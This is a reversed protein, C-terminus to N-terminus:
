CRGQAKEVLFGPVQDRPILEHERGDRSRFEVQGAAVTRHSLIVRLPIGLLDAESFMPGAKNNRDDYLVDLGADLLERYLAEAQLAVEPRDRNLACLHVQWPAIALPWIPGREDHNQEIVAAMTRGIGIGYCGMLMPRSEGCEDQFRCNMPDSYKTGLQFINGVEIGRHEILPQGTVPCPDGARALALDTFTVQDPWGPCDREPNFHKVHRDPANAGAVLNSSRAISFDMIVRVTGPALGLPSAFGPECGIARLQEDTAFRVEAAQLHKRLKVENVELDGRILVLVVRDSPDLVAVTKCISAADLALFAALEGITRCGPTTVRELPLPPSVRFELGTTAVERNARYSHDPSTFFTDEGCDAVAMFEHSVSGGMMGTDSQISVLNRLGVRAFFREYAEFVRQYTHELCSQDAHFSYADKMTFERVRILGARARAEDRYKTQIQYLLVPLARHSDVETRVLHVMAEEHTMGLLMDKGNRDRFRLLEPGVSAYRGSEEWLDRPLVVPLLVEQGGIADMEERLINEIRRVVRKAAPLLSYIGTSVPRVYGGRILFRHSVTSADRPNEKLRRGVLHSMRM